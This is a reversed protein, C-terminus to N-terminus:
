TDDKKAQQIKGREKFDITGDEKLTGIKLPDTDFLYKIKPDQGDKPAKGEAIQLPTKQLAETELYETIQGDDVIGYRIKKAKLLEKIHDLTVGDPIEEKSYLFVRLNDKSVM